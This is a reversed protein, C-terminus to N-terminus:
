TRRRLFALPVCVFTTIIMMALFPLMDVRINMEPQYTNMYWEDLAALLWAAAPWLLYHSHRQTHRFALYLAVLIVGGVTLPTTRYLMGILEAM